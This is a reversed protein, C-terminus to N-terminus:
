FLLKHQLWRISQFASAHFEVEFHSFHINCFNSISRSTTRWLAHAARIFNILQNSSKLRLRLLQKQIPAQVKLELRQTHIMCFDSISGSYQKQVPTHKEWAMQNQLFELPMISPTSLFNQIGRM